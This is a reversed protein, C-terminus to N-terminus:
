GELAANVPRTSIMQQEIDDGLTKGIEVLAAAALKKHDDRDEQQAAIHAQLWAAKAARLESCGLLAEGLAALMDFPPAESITLAMRLVPVAEYFLGQQAYAQGIEHVLKRDRLGHKFARELCQPMDVM